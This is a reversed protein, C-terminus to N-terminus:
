DCAFEEMRLTSQGRGARVPDSRGHDVEKCTCTSQTPFLIHNTNALFARPVRDRFPPHLRLEVM